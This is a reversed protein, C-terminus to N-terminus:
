CIVTCGRIDTPYKDQTLLFYSYDLDNAMYTAKVRQMKLAIDYEYVAIKDRLPKILGRVLNDECDRDFLVRREVYDAFKIHRRYFSIMLDKYDRDGCDGSVLQYLLNRNEFMTNDVVGWLGFLTDVKLYVNKTDKL